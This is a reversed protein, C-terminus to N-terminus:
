YFINILPIWVEKIRAIREEEKRKRDAEEKQFLWDHYQDTKSPDLPKFFKTVCAQM